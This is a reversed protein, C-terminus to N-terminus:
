LFINSLKVKKFTLGKSLEGLRDYKVNSLMIFYMQIFILVQSHIITHLFYSTLNSMDYTISIVSLSIEIMESIGILRKFLLMWWNQIKNCSYNFSDAFFKKAIQWILVLFFSKGSAFFSWKIDYFINWRVDM